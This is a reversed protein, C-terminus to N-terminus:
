WSRSMLEENVEAFRAGNHCQRENEASLRSRRPGYTLVLLFRDKAVVRSGCHVLRSTDVFFMRGPPGILPRYMNTDMGMRRAEQDNFCGPYNPRYRLSSRVRDLVLPPGNELLMKHTTVFVKLRTSQDHDVHWLQSGSWQNATPRHVPSFNYEIDQLVPMERLYSAALRVIRESLALRRFPDGPTGRYINRFFYNHHGGQVKRLDDVTVGRMTGQLDEAFALVDTALTPDMDKVLILERRLVELDRQEAESLVIRKSRARRLRIDDRHRVVSSLEHYTGKLLGTEKLSQRFAHRLRHGNKTLTELIPTSM